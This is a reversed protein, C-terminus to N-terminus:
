TDLVDNSTVGLHIYKSADGECVESLAKVVAMVDHNIEKEIEKVRSLKVFKTNAKKEVEKVISEDKINGAKYHAKVLACEVKLMYELKKEEDFIEKVEKRGYRYEIPHIM